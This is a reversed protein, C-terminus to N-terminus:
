NKAIYVTPFEISLMLRMHYMASRLLIHIMYNPRLFNSIANSGFLGLTECVFLGMCILQM